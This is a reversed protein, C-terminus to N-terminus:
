SSGKSLQLKGFQGTLGLISRDGERQAPVTDGHQAKQMPPLSRFEVPVAGM